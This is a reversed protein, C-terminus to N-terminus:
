YALERDASSALVPNNDSSVFIYQAYPMVNLLVTIATLGAMLMLAWKPIYGLRHQINVPLVEGMPIVLLEISAM